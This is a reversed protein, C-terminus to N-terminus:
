GFNLVHDAHYEKLYRTYIGGGDVAFGNTINFGELVSGPGEMTQFMVVTGNSNGDIITVEPGSESKLVIAKGLFDINEVYTGPSVIITDGHASANIAEQITLYDDPVYWTTQSFGFVPVIIIILPVIFIRM